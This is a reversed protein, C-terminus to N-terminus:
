RPIPVSSLRVDDTHYLGNPSNHAIISLWIMVFKSIGRYEDLFKSAYDMMKHFPEQCEGMFFHNNFNEEEKENREVTTRLVLASWIFLNYAERIFKM